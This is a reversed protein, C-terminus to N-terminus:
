FFRVQEAFRTPHQKSWGSAPSPHQHENVQSSRMKQRVSQRSGVGQTARTGGFSYRLLLSTSIDTVGAKSATVLM